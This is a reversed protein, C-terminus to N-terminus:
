SKVSWNAVSSIRILKLSFNKIQVFYSSFKSIWSIWSSPAWISFESCFHESILSSSSDSDLLKRETSFGPQNPEPVECKSSLMLSVVAMSPRDEPFPQVCLLAIQITRYVDFHNCWALIVDDIIDLFKEEKQLTELGLHIIWYSVNFSTTDHFILLIRFTETNM